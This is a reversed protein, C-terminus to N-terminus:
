TKIGVLIGLGSNIALSIGVKTKLKTYLISLLTLKNGLRCTEIVNKAKSAIEFIFLFNKRIANTKNARVVKDVKNM